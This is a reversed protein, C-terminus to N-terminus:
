CGKKRCWAKKAANVALITITLASNGYDNVVIEELVPHGFLFGNAPSLCSKEPKLIGHGKYKIEKGGFYPISNMEIM